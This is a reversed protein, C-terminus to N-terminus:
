LPAGRSGRRQREAVGGAAEGSGRLQREAVDRGLPPARLLLAAPLARPQRRPRPVPQLRLLRARAHLHLPPCERRRSEALRPQDRRIERPSASSSMGGGWANQPFDFLSLHAQAPCPPLRCHPLQAALLPALETASSEAVPRGAPPPFRWALGRKCGASAACRRGPPPAGTPRISPPDLASQAPFHSSHMPSPDARRPSRLLSPSSM